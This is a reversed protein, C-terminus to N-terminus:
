GTHHPPPAPQDLGGSTPLHRTDDRADSGPSRFEAALMGHQRSLLEMCQMSVAELEDTLEQCSDRRGAEAAAHIRHVLESRRHGLSRLEEGTRDIQRWDM